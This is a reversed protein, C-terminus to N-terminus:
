PNLYGKGRCPKCVRGGVEGTSDCFPCINDGEDLKQDRQPDEDEWFEPFDYDEPMYQESM